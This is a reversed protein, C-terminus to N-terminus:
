VRRIGSADAPSLDYANKTVSAGIHALTAEPSVRALNLSEFSRREAAVAVLPVRTENGTAPHITHAAVELAISRVMQRRDAEFIEHLTRLAVQNVISAYRDRQVKVSLEKWTIEDKSKTYKFSSRSPLDHAAPMLAVLSLEASSPDYDFEFDIPLCEPYVSNALVISVYEDVAEKVGYALNSVLADLKANHSEIERVFAEQALRGRRSIEAERDRRM